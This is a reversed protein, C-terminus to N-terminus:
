AEPSSVSAWTRALASRRFTKCSLTSAMAVELQSSTAEVRVKSRGARRTRSETCVMAQGSTSPRGPLTFWTRATAVRMMSYQRLRPTHARKTPCTVLSPASAPGLSRSCMTSVTSERSPSLFCDWLSMRTNLFRNPEESSISTKRMSRVPMFMTSSGVAKKRSSRM